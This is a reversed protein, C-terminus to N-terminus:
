GKWKGDVIFGVYDACLHKYYRWAYNGFSPLLWAIKWYILPYVPVDLSHFIIWCWFYFNDHWWFDHPFSLHMNRLSLLWDWLATYQIIGPIMSPCTSTHCCCLGTTTLPESPPLSLCSSCLVSTHTIVHQTYIDLGVFTYYWSHARSYVISLPHYHHTLTPEDNTVLIGSTLPKSIIPSTHM